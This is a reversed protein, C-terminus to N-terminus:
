PRSTDAPERPRRKRQEHRPEAAPPGHNVIEGRGRAAVDSLRGRGGAAPGAGRHRSRARPPQLPGADATVVPVERMLALALYVCDYVPHDLRQALTLAQPVLEARPLAAFPAQRLQNLADAAGALDIAGRRTMVWFANAAEVFLLPPAHLPRGDLLLAAAASGPEDVVWKIAVSADVVAGNVESTRRASRPRHPQFRGRAQAAGAATRGHAAARVKLAHALEDDVDRVTLNAM